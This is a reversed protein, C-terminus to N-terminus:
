NFIDTYKIECEAHDVVSHSVAINIGLLDKTFYKLIHLPLM